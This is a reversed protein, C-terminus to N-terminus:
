PNDTLVFNASGISAEGRASVSDVGIGASAAETAIDSAQLQLKPNLSNSPDLSLSQDLHALTATRDYAPEASGAALAAPGFASPKDAFTLHVAFGAGSSSVVPALDVSPPSPPAIPLSAPM